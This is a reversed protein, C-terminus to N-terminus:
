HTTAGHKLARQQELLRKEWSDNDGHDKVIMVRNSTVVNNNNINTQPKEILGKIEAALKGAKVRDDVFLKENRVIKMMENILEDRLEEKDHQEFGETKIRASEAIVFDDHIWKSAAWLAKPTDIGFVALGAKFPEGPHKLLEAAFATKLKLDEPDDSM